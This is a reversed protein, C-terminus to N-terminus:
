AGPQPRPSSAEGPRAPNPDSTGPAGAARAEEEHGAEGNRAPPPAPPASAAFVLKMVANLEPGRSALLEFLEERTIPRRPKEGDDVDLMLLALEFVGAETRVAQQAVPGHFDYRGLAIRDAVVGVAEQYAGGDAQQAALFQRLVRQALNTAFADKVAQTLKRARVVKEGWEISWRAGANGLADGVTM